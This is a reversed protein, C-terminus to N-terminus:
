LLHMPAPAPASRALERSFRFVPGTATPSLGPCLQHRLECARAPAPRPPPPSRPPPPAAARATGNATLEARLGAGRQFRLKVDPVSSWPRARLGSTTKQRVGNQRPRCKRYYRRSAPQLLALGRRLRIRRSDAGDSGGGHHPPVPRRRPRERTQQPPFPRPWKPLLGHNAARHDAIFARGRGSRGPVPSRSRPREAPQPLPSRSSRPRLGPRETPAPPPGRSEAGGPGRYKPDQLCSTFSKRFSHTHTHTDLAPALAAPASPLGPSVQSFATPCSASPSSASVPSHQQPYRTLRPSFSCTHLFLPSM